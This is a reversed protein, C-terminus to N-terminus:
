STRTMGLVPVASGYGAILSREGLIFIFSFLGILVIHGAAMNAFLRVALVFIRIALSIIELPFLLPVLWAPVGGPIFTKFFGFFGNEKISLGVILFFSVLAMGATISINATITRTGPVLGIYNALLLFIFLTCFFPVLKHGEHGLNPLVIEDRVFLAFGEVATKILGGKRSVAWPLFILLFFYISFPSFLFSLNFLSFSLCFLSFSLNFPFDM